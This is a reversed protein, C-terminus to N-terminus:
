RKQLLCYDAMELLPVILQLHVSVNTVDKNSEIGELIEADVGWLNTIPWDFLLLHEWCNGLWLLLATLSNAKM